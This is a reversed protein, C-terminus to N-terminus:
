QQSGPLGTGQYRPYRFPPTPRRTVEGNLADSVEIGNRELTSGTARDMEVLARAYTAVATIDAQRAAIADRERLVVNYSTSIGLQLKKREADLTQDALNVAEHAAEVQAKGQILGIVAQRVELSIQQRLQQLTVEFQKEELRARLNDAQASRNRIPLTVSLGSAYEPYASVFDQNLSDAAGGAVLPSNGALGAGAYLAFTNVAPFLGNRTFRVTVNQNRLGEESVHLDPRSSLANQLAADLDPMDADNPEPLQDTTEIEAADLEPDARKSLLNKLQVQQLQVNTKAVILDREAVAVSSQATTVDLAAGSGIAVM